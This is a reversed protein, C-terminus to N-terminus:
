FSLKAIDPLRTTSSNKVAQRSPSSLCTALHSTMKERKNADHSAISGAQPSTKAKKHCKRHKRIKRAAKIEYGVEKGESKKRWVLKAEEGSSAGNRSMKEAATDANKIGLSKRRLILPQDVKEDDVKGIM